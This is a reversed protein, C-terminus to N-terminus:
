RPLHLDDFGSHSGRRAKDIALQLVLLLSEAAEVPMLVEIGVGPAEMVELVVGVATFDESVILNRAGTCAFRQQVEVAHDAEDDNM